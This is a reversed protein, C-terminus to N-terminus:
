SQVGRSAVAAACDVLHDLRSGLRGLPATWAPETNVDLELRVLHQAPDDSQQAVGDAGPRISIQRVEMVSWKSLRNTRPEGPGAAPLPLNIQLFFDEADAPLRLFPLYPALSTYGADRGEVPKLLTLGLAVRPVALDISDLWRGVLPRFSDLVEGVAGMTLQGGAMEDPGAALVCDVRGPGQALRLVHGDLLGAEVVQGTRPQEQRTEAPEGVIDAWAVTRKEGPGLLLTVRALELQWSGWDPTEGTNPETM